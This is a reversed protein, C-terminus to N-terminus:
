WPYERGDHNFFKGSHAPRLNEILRRLRMVSDTSTIAIEPSADSVDPLMKKWQIQPTDLFIPANPSSGSTPEAVSSLTPMSLAFVLFGLRILGNKVLSSCWGLEEASL